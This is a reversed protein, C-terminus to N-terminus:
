VERKILVHLIAFQDFSDVSKQNYKGIVFM